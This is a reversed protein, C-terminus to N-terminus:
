AAKRQPAQAQDTGTRESLDERLMDARRTLLTNGAFSGVAVIMAYLLCLFVFPVVRGFVESDMSGLNHASVIMVCSIGIVSVGVSLGGAFRLVAAAREMSKADQSPRLLERVAGWSDGAGFVAVVLLAPCVWAVMAVMSNWLTSFLPTGHFLNSIFFGVMFASAAFAVVRWATEPPRAMISGLGSRSPNM